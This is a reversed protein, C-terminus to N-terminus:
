CFRLIEPVIAQMFKEDSFRGVSDRARQRVQIEEGYNDLVRSLCEAYEEATEALYGTKGATTLIAGVIYHIIIINMLSSTAGLRVM